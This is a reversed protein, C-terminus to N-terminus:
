FFHDLDRAVLPLPFLPCPYVITGWFKDEKMIKMYIKNNYTTYNM